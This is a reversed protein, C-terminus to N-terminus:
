GVHEAVVHRIRAPVHDEGSRLRRGTCSRRLRSLRVTGCAHSTSARLLIARACLREVQKMHHTGMSVVAGM